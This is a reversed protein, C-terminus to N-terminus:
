GEMAIEEEVVIMVVVVRNMDAEVHVRQFVRSVKDREPSAIDRCSELAAINKLDAGDDSKRDTDMGVDMGLSMDMGM